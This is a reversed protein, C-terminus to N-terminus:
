SHEGNGERDLTELGRKAIANDPDRELLAKYIERARGFHGQATYVGAMTATNWSSDPAPPIEAPKIETKYDPIRGIPTELSGTKQLENLEEKVKLALRNGPSSILISKVVDEAEDWNGRKLHIKAMMVMGSILSPHRGIGARCINLADDIMGHDLFFGAIPVFVISGPDDQWQKYYKLFYSNNLLDPHM